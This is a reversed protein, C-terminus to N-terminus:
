TVTPPLQSRWASIQAAHEDDHEYTNAAIIQALNADGFRRALDPERLAELRLCVQEFVGEFDELVQDLPREKQQAYIQANIGDVDRMDWQPKQQRALQFLLRVLRSQWVAIHGLIDKVSWDGMVGPASMQETTLGELADELRERSAETQELIDTIGKNM